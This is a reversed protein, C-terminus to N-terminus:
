ANKVCINELINTVDEARDTAHELRTYIEKWKIVDLVDMKGDFLRSVVGRTLDDAENERKNVEIVHPMVADRGIKRVRPLQRVAERIEVSCAELIRALQLSEPTPLDVHFMRFRAAVGEIEDLVDDMCSALAHIDEPDFPTVFSKNLRDFIEHTAQCEESVLYAVLPTVFNPDLADAMGGLLQETLRTKAIPAIVNCKINYKAGEQALVNSLGVLGMKAAGYNSQGFNGFIGAGSAAFVIRGYNNEKMVRFAPQTVFFAGKLHVDLIAELDKPELKLFSKDRLIGANNVLVDIRGFNDLASQVIAKGGEPTSVSDYNAVAKGGAEVIEKVTQDAMSSGGGTGDAKGGLDNVVVSAGRSALMLAYTKGLGGGAGTVIAVRGDYRIESM